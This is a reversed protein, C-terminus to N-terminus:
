LLAARRHPKTLVTMFFLTAAAIDILLLPAWTKLWTMGPAWIELLNPLSWFAYVLFSIALRAMVLCFRGPDAALHAM